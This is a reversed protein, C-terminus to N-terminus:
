QKLLKYDVGIDYALDRVNQDEYRPTTSMQPSGGVGAIGIHSNHKIPNFHDHNAGPVDLNATSLTNGSALSGLM